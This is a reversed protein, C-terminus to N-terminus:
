MQSMTYGRGIMCLNYVNLRKMNINAGEMFSGQYEWDATQINSSQVQCKADDKTFEERTGGPKDARWQPQGACGALLAVMGAVVLIRGKM